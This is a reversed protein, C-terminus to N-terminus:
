GNLAARRAQLFRVLPVDQTLSIAQDYAARAQAVEGAEALLDARAAWMAQVEAGISGAAADLAALGAASGHVKGTVVAQAVLAGASPAVQLLAFYLKNLATWDTAGTAARAMHVQQIAAEIQFRGPAAHALAATLHQDGYRWLDADWLAVDQQDTPVLVDDVVRAARRAHGYAILAALGRAEPLDPLLRALLEALYLAEGGMMDLPALWDVTHAAYVAEMVAEAREPLADPGPIVFPIRADRVKSKARVLRKALAPASVMFVDAITAADLGLVTQLMLPTHLDRAIAPHACVLLLALRDDPLADAETNDPAAMEPPEEPSHFRAIHRQRDTMSNRAVRLLWADPTDPVGRTPWHTLAAAFAEALADEALAIDGTRAALFALLRGYSDRAAREAARATQSM